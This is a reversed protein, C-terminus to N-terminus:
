VGFIMRSNATTRRAIEELPLKFVDALKEAIHILYSSENRKGRYPVPALYPSDTELVIRNLGIEPLVEPLDSKKFTAVGGIGLYFGLAVARRADELSGTFCHFIGRLRSVQEPGLSKQEDELVRCIVEFSERSHIVVPLDREVAWKLQIRFAEEQEALLSKDWYLDIGIEGVAVCDAEDLARKIPDLDKRFDATVSSPHLGLMPFCRDPYARCMALLPSISESDINPLFLREVGQDMARKMVDERDADFASLYLHTHTDTLM